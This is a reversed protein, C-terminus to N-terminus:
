PQTQTLLKGPDGALPKLEEVLARVMAAIL